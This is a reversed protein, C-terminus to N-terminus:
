AELILGREGVVRRDGGGSGEDTYGPPVTPVTPAGAETTSQCLIQVKPSEANRGGANICSVWVPTIPPASVLSSASTTGAENGGTQAYTFTTSTVSTITFTGNFSTAAGTVGAIVVSDGKRYAQNATVTVVNGTRSIATIVIPTVAAASLEIYEQRRGRDKIEEYLNLDSDKYIRYGDIDDNITPLKWTLLGGRSGAQFFLDRPTAPRRATARTIIKDSLNKREEFTYSYGNAPAPFKL